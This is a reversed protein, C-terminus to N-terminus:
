TRAGAEAAVHLAYAITSHGWTSKHEYEADTYQADHVVLDAGDCLELVAPSIWSMDAPAQHDCVFAASVGGAEVRFGLTNGVHPVVRVKVKASGIGFDEDGADNFELQGNLGKVTVPFFPPKVIMEIAERLSGSEQVQGYVEMRGGERLLPTCFPLGVIHDWHLHSLLVTMAAANGPGLREELDYGLPRLGSGLDIVIPPEDGLDVAICATNGGYRVYSEGSCPCSGRM